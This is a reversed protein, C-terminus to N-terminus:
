GTVWEFPMAGRLDFTMADECPNILADSTSTTYSWQM